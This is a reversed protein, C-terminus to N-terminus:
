RLGDASVLTDIMRAYPAPQGDWGCAITTADIALGRTAAFIGPWGLDPGSHRDPTASVLRGSRDRFRPRRDDDLDIIYGYEHV